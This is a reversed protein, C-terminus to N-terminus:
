KTKATLAKLARRMRERQKPSFQSADAGKEGDSEVRRPEIRPKEGIGEGGALEIVMRKKDLILKGMATLETNSAATVRDQRFLEAFVRSEIRDLAPYGSVEHHIMALEAVAFVSKPDDFREDIVQRAQNTLAVDAPSDFWLMLQDAIPKDDKKRM